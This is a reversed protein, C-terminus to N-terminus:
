KRNRKRNWNKRKAQLKVAFNADPRHRRRIKAGAAIWLPPFAVVASFDDDDDAAAEAVANEIGILSGM